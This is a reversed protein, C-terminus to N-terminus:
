VDKLSQLSNDIAQHETGSTMTAAQRLNNKCYEFAAYNSTMTKYASAETQYDALTALVLKSNAKNAVLQKVQQALKMMVTARYAPHLNVAISDSFKQVPYIWSSPLVAQSVMVLFMGVILGSAVFAVPKTVKLWRRAMRTDINKKSRKLLSMKSAIPLLNDIDAPKAGVAKLEKALQKQIATNM